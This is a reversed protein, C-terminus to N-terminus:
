ATPEWLGRVAAATSTVSGSGGCPFAWNVMAVAAQATRDEDTGASSWTRGVPALLGRLVTSVARTVTDPCTGEALLKSALLTDVYQGWLEVVRERFSVLEVRAPRALGAAASSPDLLLGQALVHRSGVDVLTSTMRDLAVRSPDEGVLRHVLRGASDIESRVCEVYLADKGEWHLYISGKGVEACLAIESITTRRFGQRAFLGTAIGIVGAPGAPDSQGHM